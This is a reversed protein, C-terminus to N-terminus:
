GRSNASYENLQMLKLARIDSKSYIELNTQTVIANFLKNKMLERRQSLKVKKIIENFSKQYEKKDSVNHFKGNKYELEWDIHLYPERYINYGNPEVYELIQREFCRSIYYIFNPLLEKLFDAGNCSSLNQKFDYNFWISPDIDFEFCIGDIIKLQDGVRDTIFTSLINEIKM